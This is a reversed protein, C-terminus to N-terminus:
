FPETLFHSPTDAMGAFTMLCVCHHWPFYSRWLVLNGKKARAASSRQELVVGRLELVVEFQKKYSVCWSRYCIHSVTLKFNSFVRRLTMSIWLKQSQEWLSQSTIQIRHCAFRVDTELWSWSCCWAAYPERFIPRERCVFWALKYPLLSRHLRQLLRCNSRITTDWCLTMLKITKFSRGWRAM